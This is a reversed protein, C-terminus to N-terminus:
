HLTTTATKTVTTTAEPILDNLIGSELVAIAQMLASKVEESASELADNLAAINSSSRQAMQRAFSNNEAEMTTDLTATETVTATTDASKTVSKTVTTPLTGPVVETYVGDGCATTTTGLITPVTLTEGEIGGSAVTVFVTETVTQTASTGPTGEWLLGSDSDASISAIISLHNQLRQTTTEVLAVNGEEAMYIIEDVRRDVLKAHLEAKAEPSTTLFLQVQETALKVQYLPSDPMSNSAAAVVGGGSLLLTLALSAATVWKLQWGSLRRHKKSAAEKLASHFQYRARARFDPRPEITLAKRAAIVTQLLPKLEDAYQRYRALCEEVSEGGVLIRELCDDLINDIQKNKRSFM